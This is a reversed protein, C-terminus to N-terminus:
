LDLEKKLQELSITEGRKEEERAQHLLAMEESSLLTDADIMHEKIFDLDKKIEEVKELLLQTAEM